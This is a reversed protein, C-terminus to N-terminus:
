AEDVSARLWELAAELEAEDPTQLKLRVNEGPYSGVTVDFRERLEALRGVLASEPEDVVIVGVHREEGEFEAEVREFMAKMEEPVGPLVYVNEVVCGPAVGEDNHLPRAGEPIDATGAALDERAYGGETALWEIVAASEVVPRALAAAVSAITVDDHTPGLGGTVVVADYEARYENVVRAIDAERDPVVTVREVDVGRDSLRRGLWAANTNVTDGALLEDGVCVLAVDMADLQAALPYVAGVEGPGPTDAWGRRRTGVTTTSM